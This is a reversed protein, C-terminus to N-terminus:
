YYYRPRYRPRHCSRKCAKAERRCYYESDCAESSMCDNYEQVCDQVCLDVPSLRAAEVVFYPIMSRDVGFSQPNQPGLVNGDIPSALPKWFFPTAPNMDPYPEVSIVVSYGNCLNIPPDIFDSGPYAPPDLPGATPGAGDSDPLSPDSFTGFSKPEGSPDVVWGEYIFGSPAIPVSLSRYPNGVPATANFIWIGLCDDDTAASTPTALFFPGRLNESFDEGWFADTNVVARTGASNFYGSVLRHVSPAPDPDERPEITLVFNNGRLREQLTIQMTIMTGKLQGTFRGTSVPGDGTIIWGEYVENPALSGLENTFTYSLKYTYQATSLALLLIFCGFLKM